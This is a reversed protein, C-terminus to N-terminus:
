PWLMTRIKTKCKEPEVFQENVENEEFQLQYIIGKIECEAPLLGLESEMKAIAVREMFLIQESTFRGTEKLRKMRRRIVQTQIARAKTPEGSGGLSNYIRKRM